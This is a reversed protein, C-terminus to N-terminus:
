RNLELELALIAAFCRLLCKSSAAWALLLFKNQVAPQDPEPAAIPAAAAVELDVAIQVNKQKKYINKRVM